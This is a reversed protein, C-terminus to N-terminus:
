KNILITERRLNARVVTGLFNGIHFQVLTDDTAQEEKNGDNDCTDKVHLNGVLNPKSTLVGAELRGNYKAPIIGKHQGVHIAIDHKNDQPDRETNDHRNGTKAM